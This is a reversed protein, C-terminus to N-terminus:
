EGLWQAKHKKGGALHFYLKGEAARYAVAAASQLEAGVVGGSALTQFAQLQEHKM